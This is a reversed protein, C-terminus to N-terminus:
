AATKILSDNVQYKYVNLVASLSPNVKISSRVPKSSESLYIVQGLLFVKTARM